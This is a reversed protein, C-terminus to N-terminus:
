QRYNIKSKKQRALYDRAFKKLQEGKLGSQTAEEIAKAENWGQETIRFIMMYPAVREAFACNILMPHNSKDRVMGLFEDVQERRPLKDTAPINFYRLKSQEVMFRERTLDVGDKNTRLTLVSRYGNAAAKAYAHSLPQGGAVPKDDICLVVPVDVKSLPDIQHAAPRESQRLEAHALCAGFMTTLFLILLLAQSNSSVPIKGLRNITVLSYSSVADENLGKSRSIIEPL